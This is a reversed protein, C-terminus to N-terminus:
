CLLVFCDRDTGSYCCTNINVLYAIELNQCCSHCICAASQRNGPEIRRIQPSCEFLATHKDESSLDDSFFATRLHFMRLNKGRCSILLDNVTHLRYITQRFSKGVLHDRLQDMLNQICPREMPFIQRLLYPFAILECISIIRDPSNMKRFIHLLKECGPFTQYEIFKQKKHQCYLEQLLFCFLSWVSKWHFWYPCGLLDYFPKGIVQGSGLLIDPMLDFPIQATM